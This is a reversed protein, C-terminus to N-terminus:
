SPIVFRLLEENGDAWFDMRAIYLLIGLSAQIM